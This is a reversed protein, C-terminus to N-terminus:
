LIVPAITCRCNCVNEASGSPDAPYLMYDLGGDAPVEFMDDIPIRTEHLWLHSDRTRNDITALWEKQQIGYAKYTANQGMNVSGATETRAILYARSKALEYFVSKAGEQLKQTIVNLSDGDEIGESLVSRLKKLLEKKTTDNIEVAKLLGYKEVWKNFTENTIHLLDFETIDKYSKSGDLLSTANNRGEQMSKIWAGALSRKVAIDVEKSFYEAILNEVPKNKEENEKLLISIDKNQRDAIKKVATIFDSEHSRAKTDFLNYCKQQFANYEIQKQFQYATVSKGGETNEEPKEEETIEIVSEEESTSPEIDITDIDHASVRSSGMPLIYHGEDVSPNIGFAECYQEVTIAGQQVGFQYIRLKLEEDEAIEFNHKCVLDADYEPCLQRNLIREFWELEPKVVNKAFLYFSSDITARNSNEIIGMIEPPIQFHQLCEDRLFKRSEVMDLEKPNIGVTKVDMNGTLVAPERAHLFGSVKQMLSKKIQNAGDQNGQFGTVIYPPTADNFFFNKQYKSAYEDAEIEDAVSEARGKGRGYPDSVDVDKFWIFDKADVRLTVGGLEGYPTVEFTHDGITPTKLIWMKPVPLLAIIKNGDRVKLWGCEGTLYKYVFTLYRLTWGDIEPFTPCPNELLQYLEHELVPEASEKDKRLDKKSYLLLEASACHKAIVNVSDLRPTNGYYIPMEGSARDPAKTWRRALMSNIKSIIDM